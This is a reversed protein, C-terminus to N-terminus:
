KAFLSNEVIFLNFKESIHTWTLMNHRERYVFNLTYYIVKQKVQMFQTCKVYLRSSYM